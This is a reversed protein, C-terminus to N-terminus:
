WEGVLWEGAAHACDITFHIGDPECDDGQSEAWEDFGHLFVFPRGHATAASEFVVDISDLAEAPLGPILASRPTALIVLRDADILALSSMVNAVLQDFTFDAEMAWEAFLTGAYVLAVDHHGSSGVYENTGGCRYGFRNIFPNEFLWPCAAQGFNEIVLGDVLKMGESLLTARSDGYVGVSTPLAVTTTTTEGEPTTSLDPSNLTSTQSQAAIIQEQTVVCNPYCEAAEREASSGGVVGLAGITFALVCTIRLMLQPLNVSDGRGFLRTVTTM